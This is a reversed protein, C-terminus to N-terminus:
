EDERHYVVHGDAYGIVGSDRIVTGDDRVEFLIAVSSPKDMQDFSVAPQEYAYTTFGIRPNVLVEEVSDGYGIDLTDISDPWVDFDNLYRHVAMNIQRVNAVAQRFDPTPQHTSFAPWLIVVLVLIASYLVLRIAWVQIRMLRLWRGIQNM